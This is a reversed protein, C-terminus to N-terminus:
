LVVLHSYNRRYYPRSLPIPLDIPVPIILITGDLYPDPIAVGRTARPGAGRTDVVTSERTLSERGARDRPATARAGHQFERRSQESDPHEEARTSRRAGGSCRTATRRHGAGRPEGEGADEKAATRPVRSRAEFRRSYTMGLTASRWGLGRDVAM